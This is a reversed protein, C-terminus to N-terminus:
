LCWVSPNKAATNSRTFYIQKGIKSLPMKGGFAAKKDFHKILKKLM